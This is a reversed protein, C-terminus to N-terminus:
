DGVGAVEGEDIVVFTASTTAVVKGDTARRATGEM